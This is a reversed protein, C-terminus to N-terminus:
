ELPPEIPQFSAHRSSMVGGDQVAARRAIVADAERIYPELKDLTNETNEEQRFDEQLKGIMGKARLDAALEASVKGFEGSVRSIFIQFPRSKDAPSM